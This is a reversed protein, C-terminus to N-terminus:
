SKKLKKFEKKIWRTDMGQCFATFLCFVTAALARYTFFYHIYSHNSLILFRIPPLLALLFLLLPLPQLGNRKRTMYYCFFLLFLLLCLILICYSGTLSTPFLCSLNRLLAQISLSVGTLESTAGHLRLSAQSLADTFLNQQLILSGLGWKMVWNLVYAGGWCLIVQLSFVVGEQITRFQLAQSAKPESAASPSPRYAYLLLLALPLLFTLTETTLFDLYSTLSGSIIFVSLLLTRSKKRCLIVCICVSLSLLFTWTYELSFPIYWVSVFLMSCLFGAFTSRNYHRLLLIALILILVCLICGSLIYIQHLNLVTLLPRIIAISGHWYRSYDQTPHPSHVIAYQLNDNENKNITYYYSSRMVSSLPHETDYYYAINLLISDAYRDIKSAPDTESLSFFVPRSTLLEASEVLNSQIASRPICAVATLLGIEVLLLALWIISFLGISKFGNVPYFGINHEKHNTSM